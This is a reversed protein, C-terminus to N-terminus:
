ILFLNTHNIFLELKVKTVYLVRGAQQAVEAAVEQRMIVNRVQSATLAANM